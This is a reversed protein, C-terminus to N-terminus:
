MVGPPSTLPGIASVAGIAMHRAARIGAAGGDKAKMYQGRKWGMVEEAVRQNIEAKTM